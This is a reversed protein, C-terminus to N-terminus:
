ERNLKNQYRHYTLAYIKKSKKSKIHLILEFANCQFVKSHYEKEKLILTLRSQDIKWYGKKFIIKQNKKYYFVQYTGNKKYEFILSSKLALPKQDTLNYSKVMVWRGIIQKKHNKNKLMTSSTCYILLLIPFILSSKKIM